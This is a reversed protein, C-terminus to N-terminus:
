CRHTVLSSRHHPTEAASASHLSRPELLLLPLLLAGLPQVAGLAGKDLRRVGEGWWVELETEDVPRRRTWKGETPQAKGAGNGERGLLFQARSSLAPQCAGQTEM